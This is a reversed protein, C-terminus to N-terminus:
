WRFVVLELFEDSMAARFMMKKYSERVKKVGSLLSLATKRLINLNLPSNDKKARSADEYFVVDLVWHLNNEISWHKRIIVSIRRANAPLSSIFYRDFETKVGDKVVEHRCRIITKIDHWKEYGKVADASIITITSMEMRGHGDGAETYADLVLGTNGADVAEFAKMAEGYFKKHNSKLALLYDAGKNRITEAIATQCGMADITVVSGQIDIVELLEPIASIENSKEDVAVQGLTIGRESAWASVVHLAKKSASGSGRIAKGDIAVINEREVELWTNLCAALQNSDIREFVRRFTDSDPVGNPFELFGSLWRYKTKGLEEMDEYDKGGCLFTLLGIVVITVFMHRVNGYDRRPDRMGDMSKKLNEVKM